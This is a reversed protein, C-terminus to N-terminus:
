TLEALLNLYGHFLSYFMLLWLYAAPIAMHLTSILIRTYNWQEFWPIAENGIPLCHQYALHVMLLNCLVIEILRKAVYAPRIRPSTPYVDQYCCTPAFIFRIFHGLRLNDPYSAALAMKEKEINFHAAFDKVSEKKTNSIRDILYRNDSYVHHFSTLKLFLAISTMM